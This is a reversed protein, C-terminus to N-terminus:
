SLYLPWSKSLLEILICILTYKRDNNFEPDGYYDNDTISLNQAKGKWYGEVEGWSERTPTFKLISLRVIPIHFLANICVTCSSAFRELM